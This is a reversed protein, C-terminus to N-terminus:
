DREIINPKYFEKKNLSEPYAPGRVMVAKPSRTAEELGDRGSSDQIKFIEGCMEGTFLMFLFYALCGKHMYM